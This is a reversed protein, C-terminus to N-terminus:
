GLCFDIARALAQDFHNWSHDGSFHEFTHPYGMRDLAAQLKLHDALLPDEEGCSLYLRPRLPHAAARAALETIEIEPQWRLEPGFARYLDEFFLDGYRQRYRPDEGQQRIEDLFDHLFLYGASLACCTGFREPHLFAARLAGYGGMSGGILIQDERKRSVAFNRAILDPLEECLYRFYRGGAAMDTYLSRGAEPMVYLAGTGKAHTPLRTYDLWSDADGWLGHLLYVVKRPVMEAADACLVTLGTDMGLLQSTINGRLIMRIGEKRNAGLAM